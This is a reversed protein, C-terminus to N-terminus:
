PSPKLHIKTTVSPLDVRLLSKRDPTFQYIAVCVTFTYDGESQIHYTDDIRLDRLSQPIGPPLILWARGLHVSTPTTPLDEEAIKLPLDDDLKKGQLPPLLVGNTDRLEVKAFKNGPSEVYNWMVNTKSTLAFVTITTAPSKNGDSQWSLLGVCFNDKEAGWVIAQNKFENPISNTVAATAPYCSLVLSLIFYMKNWSTKMLTIISNIVIIM